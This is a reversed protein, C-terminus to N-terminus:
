CCGNSKNQEEIRRNLIQQSINKHITEAVTQFLFDVNFGTLASTQFFDFGRENAFSQGNNVDVIINDELDIKNGVIFIPSLNGATEQFANIWMQLDEFSQLDTVDYVLIAADANRYYVPGLSRYKEQGATDWVHYTQHIGAKGDIICSFSQYAASVTEDYTKTSVKTVYKMVLAKKGVYSNGIMVIRFPLTM